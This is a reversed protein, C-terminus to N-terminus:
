KTRNISPLCRPCFGKFYINRDNLMFESLDSPILSDIDVPFGLITLRQFSLSINKTKLLQKIQEFVLNMPEGVSEDYADRNQVKYLATIIANEKIISWEFM